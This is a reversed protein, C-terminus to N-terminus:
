PGKAKILGLIEGPAAHRGVAKKSFIPADDVTVEFLGGSSPVLQIDVGPFATRLEAAM